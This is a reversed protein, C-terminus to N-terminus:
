LKGFPACQGKVSLVNGAEISALPAEAHHKLVVGQEFMHANGLIHGKTEFHALTASARRCLVDAATDNFQEVHGLDAM